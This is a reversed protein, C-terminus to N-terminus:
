ARVALKLDMVNTRTPGTHLLDGLASFFGHSDNRALSQSPALGRARARGLTQGDVFAGAADTPGDIGDTGASLVVLDSGALPEALALAFEQNRGGRGPGRVEVTTEGGAVVCRRAGPPISRAWERAAAVSDGTLPTETINVDYGLRRAEAAAASCAVRSSGVVVADCGAAIADGPRVTEAEFGAAGRELLDRVAAAVRDLLRYRKLAALADAFSSQDPVTPGSGIVSPDDGVVDSILVTHVARGGAVRLLGGGKVASLHKRVTNIETIDAGSALLLRNVGMKEALQIPTRPLVLLSSAGGSILALVRPSATKEIVRRLRQAAALSRRDPVPHSAVAVAVASLAAGCGEATVVVGTLRSAGLAQECGLAMQAAAKGAGIVLV